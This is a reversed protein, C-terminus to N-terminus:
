KHESLHLSLSCLVYHQMIILFPLIIFDKWTVMEGALVECLVGTPPVQAENVIITEYTYRLYLHISYQNGNNHSKVSCLQLWKAYM